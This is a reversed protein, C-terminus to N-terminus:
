PSPSTYLLCLDIVTLGKQKAVSRTIGLSHSKHISYDAFYSAVAQAKRKASKTGSFMYKELWEGVLRRSLAEADDCESLLSPGYQQLIPFWAQLAAPDAAIEEKARKFQEVIARAPVYRNGAWIQPDIPGLQSHKGMVIEDASLAWMTGASMAALPVFVRIHTFKQRLYDVVSATAEASGGPTHLILDLEPGRLDKCVEMMAQMDELTIATDPGSGALWDSYYIILDRGTLAHLQSVYKRRVADFDTSGNPLVSLRLENLLEGWTPM